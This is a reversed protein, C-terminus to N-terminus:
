HDIWDDSGVPCIGLNYYLLTKQSALVFAIFALAALPLYRFFFSVGQNAIGERAIAWCAGMVLIALCSGYLLNHTYGKPLNTKYFSDVSQFGM